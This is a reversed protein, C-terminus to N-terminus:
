IGAPQQVANLADATLQFAPVILPLGAIQLIRAAFGEAPAVLAVRQRHVRLKTAFDALLAITRSDFYSAKTLDIVLGPGKEEAAKELCLRLEDVNAIDVEGRVTIVNIGDVVSQIFEAQNTM